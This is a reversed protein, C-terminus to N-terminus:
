CPSLLAIILSAFIPYILLWIMELLDEVNKIVMEYALCLIYHLIPIICGTKRKWNIMCNHIGLESNCDLLNRYNNGTCTM